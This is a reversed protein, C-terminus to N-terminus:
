DLLRVGRRQGHGYGFRDGHYRHLTATELTEGYVAANLDNDFTTNDVTLNQIRSGNGDNAFYLGYNNGDFHSDTITIGDFHVTSGSRLGVGNGTATVGDVTLNGFGNGLEIGHNFDQITLNKLTVNNAGITVGNGSGTAPADIVVDGVGQITVSKNVNVVGAYTGEMVLITEGGTAANIASQITTYQSGAGVVLVHADAFELKEVGTLDDTGLDGDVLNKDEVILSGSSLDFDGIAGNFNVTDIGAGGEITDNGAGGVFSDNGGIGHLIDDGTGGTFTDNGDAGTFMNVDNDGIFVIDGASTATHAAVYVNADSDADSADITLTSHSVNDIDAHKTNELNNDIVVNSITVAPGTVNHAADAKGAEGVRVGTSTGDITGNQVLVTLGTVDAPNTGYDAHGPDDRGKIAIAAANAHGTADVGTSSGVDTFNFDEITITGTYTDFKLNVDIGAGHEGHAGFPLGGGYEGVDNMVLNDFLTTGQLTEAYIGKQTINTFSMGNITVDTARSEVVKTADNNYFYVGIYADTISGGTVDLNTVAQGESKVIGFVSDTIDVDDIVINSIVSGAGEM